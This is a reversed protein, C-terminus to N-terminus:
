QCAQGGSAVANCYTATTDVSCSPYPGGVASCSTGRSATTSCTCGTQGCATTTTLYGAVTNAACTTGSCYDNTLLTTSCSYNKISGCTTEGSSCNYDYSGDGRHSTSCTASGPYANANSDYCDTYPLASAQCTGTHLAALSFYSDGDANTGCIGSVCVNDASCAGGNALLCTNTTSYENGNCDAVTSSQMLSLRRNNGGPTLAPSSVSDAWGDSDTDPIYIPTNPRTTGGNDIAITGGNLAISGVALTGGSNITVAAGSNLTLVATNTTSLEVGNAEDVGTIASIVLDCNSIATSGIAPLGTCPAAIVKTPTLFVACLMLLVFIKRHIIWFRIQSSLNM